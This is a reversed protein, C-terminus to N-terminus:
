LYLREQVGLVSLLDQYSQALSLNNLSQRM